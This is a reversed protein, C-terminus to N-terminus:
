QERAKALKTMASDLAGPNVMGAPARGAFLADFADALLHTHVEDAGASAGGIHPSLIVNERGCLPSDPPLYEDKFHDIAAGGIQGSDLADILAERDVIPERATNILLAGEPLRALENKGILGETEPTLACHVSVIEARELLEGLAVIEASGDDTAYPDSVIVHMGFAAAMRAVERGVAGYGVLGLTTGDLSRSRFRQQPIRGDPAWDGSQIATNAATVGRVLALLQALAFEAVAVANRGPTRIILVGHATAADIDINVPDGRADGIVALNPAGSLVAAPVHDAEVILAAAGLASLRTTLEDASHLKIPTHSLWPDYDIELHTELRARGAGVLYTTCLAATRTAANTDNM